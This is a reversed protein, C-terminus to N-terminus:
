YTARRSVPVRIKASVEMFVFAICAMVVGLIGFLWYRNSDIFSLVTRAHNVFLFFLINLLLVTMVVGFLAIWKQHANMLLTTRSCLRGSDVHESCHFGAGLGQVLKDTDMGGFISGHGTYSLTWSFARDL